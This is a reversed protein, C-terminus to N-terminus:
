SILCVQMLDLVNGPALIEPKLRGDSTPGRSSFKAMADPTFLPGCEGFTFDNGTQKDNLGAGVTLGNKFTAPSGVSSVSAGGSIEPDGSNGAAFLILSDPYNVMFKDTSTTKGDYAAKTTEGWSNSMIRAGFQYLPRFLDTDLNSPVNLNQGAIQIDFFALKADYAAGDFRKYDGYNEYAKGAVIGCVIYFSVYLLQLVIYLCLSVMLAMHTLMM